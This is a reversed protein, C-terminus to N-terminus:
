IEKLYITENYNDFRASQFFEPKETINTGRVYIYRLQNLDKLTEPIVSIPNNTISLSELRTLKGISNPLTTIDNDNLYLHELSSFNGINEPVEFIQNHELSLTELNVIEFIKEPIVKLGWGDLNIHKINFIKNSEYMEQLKKPNLIIKKIEKVPFSLSIPYLKQGSQYFRVKDRFDKLCVKRRLTFEEDLWRGEEHEWKAAKIIDQRLEDPMFAGTTLIIYGIAFYPSKRFSRRQVMKELMKFNKEVNEREILNKGFTIDTTLYDYGMAKLMSELIDMEEDDMLIEATKRSM